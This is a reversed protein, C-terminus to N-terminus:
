IESIRFTILLACNSKPSLAPLLWGCIRMLHWREVCSQDSKRNRIGTFRSEYTERVLQIHMIVMVFYPAYRIVHKKLSWYWTRVYPNHIIWVNVNQAKTIEACFYLNELDLAHVFAHNSSHHSSSILFYVDVWSTPLVRYIWTVFWLLKSFVACCDKDRGNYLHSTLNWHFTTNGM